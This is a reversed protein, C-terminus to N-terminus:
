ALHWVQGTVAPTRRWMRWGHPGHRQEEQRMASSPPQFRPQVRLGKQLVPGCLAMFNMYNVCGKNNHELLSLVQSAVDPTVGFRKFVAEFATDSVWGDDDADVAEFAAHILGYDYGAGEGLVKALRQLNSRHETRRRHHSAETKAVDEDMDNVHIVHGPLRSPSSGRSSGAGSSQESTSLSDFGPGFGPAGDGSAFVPSPVPSSRESGCQSQCSSNSSHDTSVGSSNGANTSHSEWDEDDSGSSAFKLNDITVIPSPRNIWLRQAIGRVPLAASSSQWTMPSM